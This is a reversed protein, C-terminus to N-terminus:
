NKKLVTKIGNWESVQKYEKLVAPATVLLETASTWNLAVEQEYDFDFVFQPVIWSDLLYIKYQSKIIAINTSGALAGCSLDYKVAFASNESNPLVQLNTKTCSFVSSLTQLVMWCVFAVTASLALKGFTFKGSQLKVTGGTKNL